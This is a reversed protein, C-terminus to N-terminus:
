PSTHWLDYMVMQSDERKMCPTPLRFTCARPLFTTAIFAAWGLPDPPMSGWFLKLNLTEALGNTTMIAGILGLWDSRLLNERSWDSDRMEGM